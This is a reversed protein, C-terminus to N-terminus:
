PKKVEEFAKGHWMKLISNGEGKDAKILCWSGFAPLHGQSKWTDIITIVHAEGFRRAYWTMDITGEIERGDRKFDGGLIYATTM